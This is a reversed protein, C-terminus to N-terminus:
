LLNMEFTEVSQLLRILFSYLEFLRNSALGYCTQVVHSVREGLKIVQGLEKPANEVKALGTKTAQTVLWANICKKKM